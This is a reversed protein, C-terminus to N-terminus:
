ASAISHQIGFASLWDITIHICDLTKNKKTEEYGSVWKKAGMVRIAM